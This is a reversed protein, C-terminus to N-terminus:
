LAYFLQKGLSFGHGDVENFISQSISGVNGSIAKFVENEPGRQLGSACVSALVRNPLAKWM